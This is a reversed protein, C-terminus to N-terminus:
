KHFLRRKIDKKTPQKAIKWLFEFNSKWSKAIKENEILIAYYPKSWVFIAIKNEWITTSTLTFFDEPLYKFEENKGIFFKANKRELIKGKIKLKEAEILFASNEVEFITCAEEGGGLIYYPKKDKLILKLVTRIGKRGKFVEVKTEPIKEKYLKKLMPLIKRLEKEKEKLEKLLIEPDVPSFYKINNALTYSALGKKILKNLIQYTNSRNLKANEAIKTATAEKLKLLSLYVKAENEDLGLDMLIEKEEM